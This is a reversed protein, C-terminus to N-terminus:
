TPATSTFLDIVAQAARTQTRGKRACLVTATRVASGGELEIMVLEGAAVDATVAYDPLVTAIGGGRVARKISEIHDLNIVARLPLHERTTVQNIWRRTEFRSDLLALPQLLLDRLSICSQKALAHDPAVAVVYRTVFRHAVHLEPDHEDPALAIGLDVVDDRVLRLVQESGAVRADFTIGPHESRFRAMAPLLWAAMVGEISAFSVSGRILGHLEDIRARALEMDRLSSRMQEAVIRGEETLVMGTQNREFLASQFAHELLQIQRSLASPSVHVQEAARRISGTEAVALFYRYTSIQM